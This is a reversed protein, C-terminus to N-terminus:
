LFRRSGALGQIEEAVLRAAEASGGLGFHGPGKAGDGVNYLGHVPTRQPGDSGPRARYGPWEGHFSRMMMNDLSPDLGPIHDRADEIMLDFERRLDLPPGSFEPTGLVTTLHKGEPALEPCSITQSVIFATRRTGVTMVVGPFDLLPRDSFVELLLTYSPKISRVGSLYETDFHSMGALQVAKPPGVDSIVFPAPVEIERHDKKVVVGRVAGNRVLIGTVESKAWIEGGSGRIVEALSEVLAANGRPAFGFNSFGGGRLLKFFQVAPTEYTNISFTGSCLTQFLGLVRPNDTFQLLWDKVSVPSSEEPQLTPAQLAKLVRGAEKEDRAALDILFRLGGREPMQYDTGDIRYRVRPSPRRVDFEAGVERFTRELAAGCEISIAGTTIRFGRHELSSFRGGIFPLRELVLVKIKANSLRAAACLGGAGSGIVVVQYASM